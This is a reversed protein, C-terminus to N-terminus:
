PKPGDGHAARLVDVYAKRAAHGHVAQATRFAPIRRYTLEAVTNVAAAVRVLARALPDDPMGLSDASAPGIVIRSIATHVREAWRARLESQDPRPRQYAARLDAALTRSDSDPILETAAQEWLHQWAEAEDAPLMDEEIGVLWGVYRWLHLIDAREQATYRIGLVQTAEMVGLSFMLTLQNAQADNLPQDWAALDWDGRKLLVDRIHAHVLRVRLAAAYGVGGVVLSGPTSVDLWWSATNLVRRSTAKGTQGTSTLTKCVRLSHFGVVLYVDCLSFAAAKGARSIAQAGSRLRDQDVWAPTREVARFFEVLEAPPNEISDIGETCARGFLERGEGKLRHMMAVLGDGLADVTTARHRLHQLREAGPTRAAHGRRAATTRFAGNTLATSEDLSVTTM